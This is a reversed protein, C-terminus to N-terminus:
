GGGAGVIIDYLAHTGVAIGLGRCLFLASFYCGALTRFLFVFGDFAEGYPGLHHVGAFALSSLVAAALVGFRSPVHATDLVWVLGSLLFLRFLVEEYIGAGIFAVLYAYGKPTRPWNGLPVGLRHLLPGLEKGLAWLVLAYCVSELAMGSCTGLLDGPRDHWQRGYWVFLGAVLLVPAWFFQLFGSAELLWRVFSDAGNRILDGRPGDLFVVGSEYVALLPLVFMLSPWPHRTAQWYSCESSM